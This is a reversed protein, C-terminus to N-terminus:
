IKNLKRRSVNAIIGDDLNLYIERGSKNSYYFQVYTGYNTGHCHIKYKKELINEITNFQKVVSLKNDSVIKVIIDFLEEKSM